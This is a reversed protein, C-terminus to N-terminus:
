TLPEENAELKKDIEILLEFYEVLAKLEEDILKM